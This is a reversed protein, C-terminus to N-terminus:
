DQHEITTEVYSPAKNTNSRVHSRYSLFRSSSEQNIERIGSLMDIGKQGATEKGSLIEDQNEIFSRGSNIDNKADDFAQFQHVEMMSPPNRGTTVVGHNM